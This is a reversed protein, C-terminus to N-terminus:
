YMGVIDHLFHELGQVLRIIDPYLTNRRIDVSRVM